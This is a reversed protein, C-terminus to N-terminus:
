GADHTRVPSGGHDNFPFEITFVAVPRPPYQLENCDHTHTHRHLTSWPAQGVDFADAYNACTAVSVATCRPADWRKRQLTGELQPATILRHHGLTLRVSPAVDSHLQRSLSWGQTPLLHRHALLGWATVLAAAASSDGATGDAAAVPTGARLLLDDHSPAPAATKAQMAIRNHPNGQGNLRQGWNLIQFHSLV